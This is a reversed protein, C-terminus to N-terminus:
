IGHTYEVDKWSAIPTLKVLKYHPHKIMIYHTNYTSYRFTVPKIAMDVDLCDICSPIIVYFAKSM